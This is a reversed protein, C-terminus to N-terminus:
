PVKWINLQLKTSLWWWNVPSWKYVNVKFNRFDLAPDVYTNHWPDDRPDLPNEGKVLHKGSYPCIAQTSSKSQTIEEQHLCLQKEKSHVTHPGLLKLPCAVDQFHLFVMRSARQTLWGRCLLIGAVARVSTFTRQLAVHEGDPVVCSGSSKRTLSTPSLIVNPWPFFIELWWPKDHRLWQPHVKHEKSTLFQKLYLLYFSILCM